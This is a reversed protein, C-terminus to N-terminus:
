KGTPIYFQGKSGSGYRSTLTRMGNAAMRAYALRIPEGGNRNNCQAIASRVKKALVDGLVAETNTLIATRLDSYANSLNTAEQAYGDTNLLTVTHDLYQQSCIKDIADSVMAQRERIVETSQSTGILNTLNATSMNRKVHRRKQNVTMSSQEAHVFEGYYEPNAILMAKSVVIAVYSNNVFSMETSYGSSLSDDQFMDPDVDKFADFRKLFASLMSYAEAELTEKDVNLSKALAHFQADTPNNNELLFTVIQKTYNKM